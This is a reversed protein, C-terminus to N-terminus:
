LDTLTGVGIWAQDCPLVPFTHNETEGQILACADPSAEEHVFAQADMQYCFSEEGTMEGRMVAQIGYTCTGFPVYVVGEVVFNSGEQVGTFTMESAAGPDSVATIEPHASSDFDVRQDEGVHIHLGKGAENECHNFLAEDITLVWAGTPVVVDVPDAACGLPELPTPEETDGTDNAKICALALIWLM